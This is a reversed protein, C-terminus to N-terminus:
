AAESSRARVGDGGPGDDAAVLVARLGELGEPPDELVTLIAVRDPPTLTMESRQSMLADAIRDAQNGLDARRLRTVLELVCDGTLDLGALRMM